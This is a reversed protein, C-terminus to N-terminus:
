EQYGVVPIIPEHINSVPKLVMQDKPVTPCILQVVIKWNSRIKTPNSNESALHICTNCMSNKFNTPGKKVAKARQEMVPSILESKM